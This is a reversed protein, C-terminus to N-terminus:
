SKSTYHASGIFLNVRYEGKGAWTAVQLTSKTEHVPLIPRMRQLRNWVPDPHHHLVEISTNHHRIRKM